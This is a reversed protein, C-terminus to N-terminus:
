DRPLQADFLELMREWHKEAATEDYVPFDTMTFGHAAGKYLEMTYDVHAKGLATALAGQHEPTCSGDNDAIGLYVTAEIKDSSLHPSDAGDTVLGGAHFAACAGVDQPHATATLFSLKGGICYGTTGIRDGALKPQERLARIYHKADRMAMGMDLAKLIKMLRDREPPDSFVTMADFPAYEGARYFIHPLLVVYGKAALREAMDQAAARVSGADPFMLVGPYKGEAIPEHVWCPAIGDDTKVDIRQSTTM